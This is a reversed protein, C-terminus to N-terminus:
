HRRDYQIGREVQVIAQRVLDQAKARHGGKDASAAALERDALKLADLAAQMHPQDARARGGSLLAALAGLVSAGFVAERRSLCGM